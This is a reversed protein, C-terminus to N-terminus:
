ACELLELCVRVDGAIGSGLGSGFSFDRRWKSIEQSSLAIRTGCGTIKLTRTKEQTKKSKLLTGEWTGWVGPNRTPGPNRKGTKAKYPRPKGRANPNSWVRDREDQAFDFWQSAECVVGIM